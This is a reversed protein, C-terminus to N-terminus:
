LQSSKQPIHNTGRNQSIGVFSLHLSLVGNRSAAADRWKAVDAPFHGFSAVLDTLTQVCTVQCTQKSSLAKFFNPFRFICTRITYRYM